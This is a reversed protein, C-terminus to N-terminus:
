AIKMVIKGRRGTTQALAQLVGTESLAEKFAEQVDGSILDPSLPAKLKGEALLDLVVRLEEAPVIHQFKTRISSFVTETTVTACKFFCFSMDLSQISKGAVVLCISGYPRIVQACAGFLHPTPEALCIIADVSGAGGGPLQTEIEDHRLVEDAGLSLCWDQQEKTSATAIIKLAPHYARALAITWSGVGGAGGVTLLTQKTTDGRNLTLGVKRLSELATLGAVPISAADRLSVGSPLVTVCRHDVLIHTAYSGQRSPDGLFCVRQGKWELPVLRGTDMVIGSGGFGPIFAGNAVPHGPGKNGQLKQLDVPNMDAYAIEILLDNESSFEPLQQRLFKLSEKYGGHRVAGLVEM